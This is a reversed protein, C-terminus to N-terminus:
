TELRIATLFQDDMLVCNDCSQLLNPPCSRGHYLHVIIGEDAAVDIAPILDADGTVVAIDDVRGRLAVRVLEIALHVDVGKQQYFARGTEDYRRVCQGQRVKVRPLRELYAFFRRKYSTRRSEEETPPNSQHPPADCYYVRYLDNGSCIRAILAEYDLRGGAIEAGCVKDLYAGDIFVAIQGV